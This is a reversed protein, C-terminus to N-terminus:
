DRTANTLSVMWEMCDEAQQQWIPTLHDILTETALIPQIYLCGPYIEQIEEMTANFHSEVCWEISSKKGKIPLNNWRQEKPTTPDLNRLMYEGDAQPYMPQGNIDRLHMALYKHPIGLHSAHEKGMVGGSDVTDYTFSFYPASNGKHCSLEIRGILHHIYGRETEYGNKKITHHFIPNWAVLRENEDFEPIKIGEPIKLTPYKDINPKM